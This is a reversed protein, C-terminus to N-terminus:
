ILNYLTTILSIIGTLFSLLQVQWGIIKSIILYTFYGVVLVILSSWWPNIITNLILSLLIISLGSIFANKSIFFNGAKWKEFKEAFYEEGEDSDFEYGKLLGIKTEHDIMSQSLVGYLSIAFGSFSLIITSILLIYNM